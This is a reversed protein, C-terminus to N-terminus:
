RAVSLMHLELLVGALGGLIETLMLNREVLGSGHETIKEPSCGGVGVVGGVVV